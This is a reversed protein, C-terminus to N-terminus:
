DRYFYINDVLFDTIGGQVLVVRAMNALNPSGAGGGGTGQTFAGIPIDIGVWDGEELNAGSINFGGATDDSAGGLGTDANDPGFDILELVIVDSPSFAQTVQIDIHLFEMESVDVTGDWGFGTFNLNDFSFANNGALDLEAIEFPGGIGSGAFVAPQLGSVSNYSDSFISVVDAADRAPPTEPLPINGLVTLDLSGQANFGNVSATIRANGRKLNTVVGETNVRSVDPNSSTFNYYAPAIEVMQDIGNELNYIGGLPAVSSSVGIFSEAVIDQGALIQPRPQGITGLAEFKLEDIWFTWGIENGNPVGDFDVGGASFEFVNRIEKLKSPDPIPVIVKQWQTSVKVNNIAARYKLGFGVTGLTGGISGKIWFTLADYQTLNRGAGDVVFSAGAFNGSPDTANPVDIRISSNSEYGENEDVSFVDPKAGDGIFPFYFNAGLGVFGDLFIDGSDSFTAFDVDDSIERECGTILVLFCSLLSVSLIKNLRNNKM